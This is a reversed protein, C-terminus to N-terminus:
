ASVIPILAGVNTLDLVRNVGPHRSRLLRLSDRDPRSRALSYFLGVGSSDIFELDTLDVVIMAGQEDLAPALAEEAQAAVALDFEGSLSFVVVDDGYRTREITLPGDIREETQALM